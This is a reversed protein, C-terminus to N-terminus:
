LCWTTYTDSQGTAIKRINDYIKLDNKTPQDFFNRGDIMVNYGKIKFTPFYYLKQSERGNDNKFSLVFLRNVVQFNPDILYDLYRNQPQSTTKALYEHWNITRKFGSELQKFHKINEQNSLTM